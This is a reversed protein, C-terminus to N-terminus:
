AWIDGRIDSFCAYLVGLMLIIYSRNNVVHRRFYEKGNDNLLGVFKHILLNLCPSESDDNEQDNKKHYICEEEGELFIRLVHLPRTGPRKGPRCRYAVELYKGINPCPDESFVQHNVPVQCRQKDDCLGVVVQWDRSM